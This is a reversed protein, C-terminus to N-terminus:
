NSVCKRFVNCLCWTNFLARNISCVYSLLLLGQFICYHAATSFFFPLHPLGGIHLQLTSLATQHHEAPSLLNATFWRTLLLKWGQWTFDTCASPFPCSHLWCSLFTAPALCELCKNHFSETWWLVTTLVETRTLLTKFIDELFFSCIKCGSM